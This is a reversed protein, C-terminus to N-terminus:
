AFIGTLFTGLRNWLSVQETQEIVPIEVYITKQEVHDKPVMGLALATKEIEAMNCKDDFKQQLQAKERELHEVYRELMVTERQAQKLKFCGVTMTILMCIAVVIGLMAVPDVFIRYVKQKKVKPVATSHVAVAPVIHRAASGSTYYQVYQVDIRQAM